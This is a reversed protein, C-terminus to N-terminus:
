IVAFLLENNMAYEFLYEIADVFTDFALNKVGLTERIVKTLDLINSTENEQNCQYIIFPKNSNSFCHKLLETKGLRRRGFILGSGFDDKQIIYNLAEQENERGYFAVFIM